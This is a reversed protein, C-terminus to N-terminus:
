QAALKLGGGREHEGVGQGAIHFRARILGPRIRLPKALPRAGPTASVVSPQTGRGLPSTQRRASGRTDAPLMVIGPPDRRSARAGVGEGLPEHEGGPGLDGALYEATLWRCRGAM